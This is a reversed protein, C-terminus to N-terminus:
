GLDPLCIEFTSALFKCEFLKEMDMFLCEERFRAFSKKFIGVQM